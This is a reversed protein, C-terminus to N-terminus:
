MDETALDAEQELEEETIDKGQDKYRRKQEEKIQENYKKIDM